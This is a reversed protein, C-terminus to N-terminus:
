VSKEDPLEELVTAPWVFGQGTRSVNRNPGYLFEYALVFVFQRMAEALWAM